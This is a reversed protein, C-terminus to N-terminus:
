GSSGGRIIRLLALTITRSATQNVATGNGDHSFLKFRRLASFRGLQDCLHWKAAATPIQSATLGAITDDSERYALTYGSPTLAADNRPSWNDDAVLFGLAASVWVSPTRIGVIQVGNPLVIDASLGTAGSPITYDVVYPEAM